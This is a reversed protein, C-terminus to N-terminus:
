KTEGQESLAMEVLKCVPGPIPRLGNIWLSVAGESVRLYAAMQVQTMGLSRIAERLEKSTMDLLYYALAKVSDLDLACFTTHYQLWVYLPYSRDVDPRPLPSGM